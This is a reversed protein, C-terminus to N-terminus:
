LWTCRRPLGSTLSTKRALRDCGTCPLMPGSRSTANSVASSLPKTAFTAPRFAVTCFVSAATSKGSSNIMWVSLSGPVAPQSLQASAFPQPPRFSVSSTTSAPSSAM